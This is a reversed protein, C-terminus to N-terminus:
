NRWVCLIAQRLNHAISDSRRQPDSRLATLTLAAPLRVFLSFDALWDNRDRKQANRHDGALVGNTVPREDCCCTGPFFAGPNSSAKSCRCAFESDEPKDSQQCCCCEQTSEAAAGGTVDQSLCCSLSACGCPVDALLSAIVCVGALLGRSIRSPISLIQSDM